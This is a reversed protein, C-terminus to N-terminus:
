KTEKLSAVCIYRQGDILCIGCMITSYGAEPVLLARLKMKKNEGDLKQLVENMRLSIFAEYQLTGGDIGLFKAEKNWKDIEPNTLGCGANYLPVYTKNFLKEMKKTIDKEEVKQWKDTYWNMIAQYAM